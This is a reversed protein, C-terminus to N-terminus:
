QSTSILLYRRQAQGNTTNPTFAIASKTPVPSNALDIPNNFRGSLSPVFIEDCPHIKWFRNREQAEGTLAENAYAIENITRHSKKIHNSYRLRIKILTHIQPLRASPWWILVM